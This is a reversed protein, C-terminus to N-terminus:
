SLHANSQTGRLREDDIEEDKVMVGMENVFSWCTMRLDDDFPPVDKKFRIVGDTKCIQLDLKPRLMIGNADEREIPHVEVVIAALRTHKDPYYHVIQGIFPVEQLETFQIMATKFTVSIEPIAFLLSSM